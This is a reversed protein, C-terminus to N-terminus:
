RHHVGQVELKGDLGELREMARVRRCVMGGVVGGRVIVRPLSKM